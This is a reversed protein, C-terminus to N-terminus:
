HTSPRPKAAPLLADGRPGDTRRRADVHHALALWRSALELLAFKREPDTVADARDMCEMARECYKDGAAVSEEGGSVLLARL